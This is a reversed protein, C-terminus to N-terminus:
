EKKKGRDIFINSFEIFAKKEKQMQIGIESIVSNFGNDKYDMKNSGGDYSYRSVEEKTIRVVSIIVDLYKDTYTQSLIDHVKSNMVSWYGDLLKEAKRDEFYSCNLFKIENVGYKNFLELYKPEVVYPERKEGRSFNYGFSFNMLKQFLFYDNLHDKRLAPLYLPIVDPNNKAISDLILQMDGRIDMEDYVVPIEDKGLRIITGFGSFVLLTKAPLKQELQGTLLDAAFQRKEINQFSLYKRLFMNRSVTDRTFSLANLLIGERDNLKQSLLYFYNFAEEYTKFRIEGDWYFKAKIAAVQDQSMPIIATNFTKVVPDTMKRKVKITNDHITDFYRDTIFLANWHEFDGYCNRRISEMIYRIYLTNGPDFLHFKFSKECCEDYNFNDLFCKLIEPRAAEKYKQFKEKDVLFLEGPEERFKNYYNVLSSHRDGAVPHDSEEPQWHDVSRCVSNRDYLALIDFANMLGIINYDSRQLWRMALSDAQLEQKVSYKESVKDNQVLGLDFKGTENAIYFQLTHKLYYHALEHAMIAAITAEDNVDDFIGITVILQGAPLMFANLDGGKAIYVHIMTDAALEVPIIKSLIENLYEELDRWDHYIAWSSIYRDILYANQGAYLCTMKEYIGKKLPDPVNQYIHERLLAPDLIYDNSLTDSKNPSYISVMQSFSTLPLLILLIAIYKM